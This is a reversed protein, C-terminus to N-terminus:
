WRIQEFTRRLRAGREPNIMEVFSLRGGLHARFDPHGERNQSAPGLRVSNHIIAKLRDFDARVVNVRQNAVLGTLYQRVGQLMIRTKRHHARFGEELLIAAVHLSFREVRSEFENGGSFALDDAYRTYKAGAEAALGTLRSDIRWACTNALAPSTPAGQPLHPRQYLTQVQWLQDATIDLPLHKWASGPVANTCLGGLLDAVSEPYGATRFFARIRAASFTPFFDQVDMRLVVRKGVHPAVFTRISRGRVFGHAAPHAPIRDLIQELIRRQVAKLRQKPAEILRIAGSRKIAAQYHYHGLRADGKRALGRLDALWQLEGPELGCWQALEGITTIAPIDWQAAAEVPQMSPPEAAIWKEVRLERAYKRGADAFLEDRLLFQVVEKRRPRAQADFRAVYRRALPRLWRWPRGLTRSALAVMEDVAPHGASFCEALAAVLSPNPM